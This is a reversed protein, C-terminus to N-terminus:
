SRRCATHTTFIPPPFLAATVRTAENTSNTQYGSTINRSDWLQLVGNVDDTLRVTLNAGAQFREEHPHLSIGNATNV